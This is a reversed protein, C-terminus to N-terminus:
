VIASHSSNYRESKNFIHRPVIHCPTYATAICGFCYSFCKVSVYFFFLELNKFTTGFTGFFYTIILIPFVFHNLEKKWNNILKGRKCKDMIKCSAGLPAKQKASFYTITSI